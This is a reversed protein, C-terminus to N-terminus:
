PESNKRETGGDGEPRLITNELSGQTIILRRGRPGKSSPSPQFNRHCPFKEVFSQAQLSRVEKGGGFM